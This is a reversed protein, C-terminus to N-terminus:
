DKRSMLRVTAEDVKLSAQNIAGAVPGTRLADAYIMQIYANIALMENVTLGNAVFRLKGDKFTVWPRPPPTM